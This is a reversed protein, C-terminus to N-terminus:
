IARVDADLLALAYTSAIDSYSQEGYWWCAAEHVLVGQVPCIAVGKVVDYPKYEPMASTNPDYAHVPPIGHLTEARYEELLATASSPLLALPSCLIKPVSTRMRRSEADKSSVM